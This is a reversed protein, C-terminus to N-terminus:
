RRGQQKALQQQQKMMEEMRQQWKSKKVPQKMNELLRARLKDQKVTLMFIGNQAFTILNILLYYYTLASAFSNFMFLFMIPMIYMMWKMMKQQDSNGTAPTM